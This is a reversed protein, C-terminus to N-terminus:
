TCVNKSTKKFMDRLDVKKLSSANQKYFILVEMRPVVRRFHQFILIELTNSM